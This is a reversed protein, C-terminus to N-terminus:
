IKAITCIVHVLTHQCMRKISKVHYSFNNKGQMPSKFKEVNFLSLVHAYKSFLFMCLVSDFFYINSRIVNAFLYFKKYKIVFLNIFDYLLM